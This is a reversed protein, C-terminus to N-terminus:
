QEARVISLYAAFTHLSKRGIFVGHYRQEADIGHEKLRRLLADALAEDERDQRAQEEEEARQKEYAAADWLGIIKAVAHDTEHSNAFPKLTTPDLYRGRVRWDGGWTRWTIDSKRRETKGVKDVRFPRIATGLHSGVHERLTYIQGPVIDKAKM